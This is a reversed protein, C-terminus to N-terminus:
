SLSKCRSYHTTSAHIIVKRRQDQDPGKLSFYNNCACDGSGDERIIEVRLKHVHALMQLEDDSLWYDPKKLSAFFRAMSDPNSTITTIEQDRRDTCQVFRNILDGLWRYTPSETALKQLSSQHKRIKQVLLIQDQKIKEFTEKLKDDDDQSLKEVLRCKETVAPNQLIEQAIKCEDDFIKRELFTQFCPIPTDDPYFLKYAQTAARTDINADITKREAERVMDQMNNEFLDQLTDDDFRTKDLALHDDLAEVFKEREDDPSVVRVIGSEENGLLAHFACSGDAVTEQRRYVNTVKSWPDYYTVLDAAMGDWQNSTTTSKAHNNRTYFTGLAQSQMFDKSPHSAWLQEPRQIQCIRFGFNRGTIQAAAYILEMRGIMSMFHSTDGVLKEWIFKQHSDLSPDQLELNEMRYLEACRTSRKGESTLYNCRKLENFIRDAVKKTKETTFDKVTLSSSGIQAKSLKHFEERNDVFAYVFVIKRNSFLAKFHAKTYHMLQQRVLKRYEKHDDKQTVNKTAKEYFRDLITPKSGDSKLADDIERFSNVIQSCADRTKQGFSEKVHYLYITKPTYYLVDFLEIGDPCIRDGVLWGSGTPSFPSFNGEVNKVNFLYSENYFEEKMSWRMAHSWRMLQESHKQWKGSCLPNFIRVITTKVKKKNKKVEIELEEGIRREKLLEEWVQKSKGVGVIKEVENLSICAKKLLNTLDQHYRAFLPNQMIEGALVQCCVIGDKKVFAVKRSLFKAVDEPTKELARRMKDLTLELIAPEWPHPLYGEEDEELLFDQVCRRFYVDVLQMLEQSIQYWNKGLKFYNCVREDAIAIRIQGALSDFLPSSVWQGGKLFDFHVNQLCVSYESPTNCGYLLSKLKVKLQEFSIKQHEWQNVRMSSRHPYFRIRFSMSAYYDQIHPPCVDFSEDGQGSLAKAVSQLLEQNLQKAMDATVRSYYKLFSFDEDQDEEEVRTKLSLYTKGGSGIKAFHDVLEALESLSFRRHLKVVGDSVEMSCHKVEKNKMFSKLSFVSSNDRLPGQIIQYIKQIENPDFVKRDRLLETAVLVEGVLQKTGQKSKHKPDLLRLAIKQPFEYDTFELTPQFGRHGLTLALVEEMGATTRHLFVIYSIDCSTPPPTHTEEPSQVTGGLNKVFSSFANEVKIICSYMEPTFGNLKQPSLEPSSIKIEQFFPKSKKPPNDGQGKDKEAQTKNANYRQIILACLEKLTHNQSPNSHPFVKRMHDVRLSRIGMEPLQQHTAQVPSSM